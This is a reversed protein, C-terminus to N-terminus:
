TDPPCYTHLKQFCTTALPSYGNSTFLLAHFTTRCTHLLKEETNPLPPRM